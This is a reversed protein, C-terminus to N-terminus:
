DVGCPIEIIDLISDLAEDLSQYRRFYFSLHDVESRAKFDGDAVEGM